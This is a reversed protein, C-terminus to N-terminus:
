KKEGRLSLPPGVWFYKKINQVVNKIKIQKHKPMLFYMYGKIKVKNMKNNNM